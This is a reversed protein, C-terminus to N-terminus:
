RAPQAGHQPVAGRAGANTQGGRGDAQRGGSDPLRRFAPNAQRIAKVTFPDIKPNATYLVVVVTPDKEALADDILISLLDADAPAQTSIVLSLPEPQAGVAQELADYLESRPGSVQGLEDHM